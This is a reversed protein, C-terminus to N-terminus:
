WTNRPQQLGRFSPSFAESFSTEDVKPGIFAVGDIHEAATRLSLEVKEDLGGGHYLDFGAVGLELFSSEGFM